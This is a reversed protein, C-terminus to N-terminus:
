DHENFSIPPASKEFEEADAERRMAQAINIFGYIASYLGLFVGILIIWGGLEFRRSLYVSGWIFIVLPSVVSIGLQSFLALMRVTRM